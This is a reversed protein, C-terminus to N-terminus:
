IIELTGKNENLKLMSALKVTMGTNILMGHGHRKGVLVCGYTNKVTSGWHFRVGTFDKVGKILVMDMDFTPSYTVELDYTGYPIATEGYVKDEDKDDLDGDGNIDRIRDELTDCLIKNNNLDILVGETYKFTKNVRILRLKLM